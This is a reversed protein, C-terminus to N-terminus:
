LDRFGQQLYGVLAHPDPKAVQKSPFFPMAGSKVQDWDPLPRM